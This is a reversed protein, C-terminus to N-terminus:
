TASNVRAGSKARKPIKQKEQEGGKKEMKRCEEDTRAAAGGHTCEDDYNDNIRYAFEPNATSQDCIIIWKKSWNIRIFFGKAYRDM